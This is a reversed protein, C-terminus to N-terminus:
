GKFLNTYEHYKDKEIYRKTVQNLGFARNINSKEQLTLKVPKPQIVLPPKNWDVLIYEKLESDNNIM